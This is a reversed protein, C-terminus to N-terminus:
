LATKPCFSANGFIDRLIAEKNKRFNDFCDVLYRVFIDYVDWFGELYRLKIKTTFIRICGNQIVYAAIKLIEQLILCQPLLDLRKGIDTMKFFQEKM